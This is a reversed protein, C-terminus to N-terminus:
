QLYLCGLHYLALMSISLFKLHKYRYTAVINQLIDIVVYIIFIHLQIFDIKRMSKCTKYTNSQLLEFLM